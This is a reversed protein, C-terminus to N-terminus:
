LKGRTTCLSIVLAGLGMCIWQAAMAMSGGTARAFACALVPLLPYRRQWEVDWAPPWSHQAGLFVGEWDDHDSGIAHLLGPTETWALQLRLLFAAIVLLGVIVLDWREPEFAARIRESVSPGVVPDASM